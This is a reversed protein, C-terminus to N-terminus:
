GAAGWGAAGIGVAFQGRPAGSHRIGGAGRYQSDHAAVPNGLPVPGARGRRVGAGRREHEWQPEITRGDLSVGSPLVTAGEARLPIRVRTARGFVHLDYQARLIDVTLRGSTTEAALAGRYTAAQILWGPSNGAAAARRYLEQYLPESVYVKGGSPKKNEDVADARSLGALRGSGEGGGRQRCRSAGPWKASFYM